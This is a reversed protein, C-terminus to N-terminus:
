VSILEEADYLHLPFSACHKLSRTVKGCEKGVSPFMCSSNFEPFRKGGTDHAKLCQEQFTLPRMTSAVSTRALM